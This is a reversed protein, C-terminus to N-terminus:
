EPSPIARITLSEIMGIQEVGVSTKETIPRLLKASLASKPSPTFPLHEDMVSHSFFGRAVSFSENRHRDEVVGAFFSKQAIERL